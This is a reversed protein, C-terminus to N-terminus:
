AARIVDRVDRRSTVKLKGLIRETHRGATYITVGLLRAIEKNSQREALLRAVEIERETLGYRYKLEDDSLTASDNESQLLVLVWGDKGHRDVLLRFREGGIQVGPTRRSPESELLATATELLNAIVTDPAM